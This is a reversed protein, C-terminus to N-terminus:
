TTNPQFWLRYRYLMKSQLLMNKVSPGKWRKETKAGYVSAFGVKTFSGHPSNKKEDESPDRIGGKTKVFCCFGEILLKDCNKTKSSVVARRGLCMTAVPGGYGFMGFFPQSRLVISILVLSGTFVNFWKVLNGDAGDMGPGSDFISIRDPHLEVSILRVEGKNNSWLAQLSNDILDALATEPTYDDPLEKLLDTDPTLDWMGEYTDPAASGDHLCLINWENPLLTRFNIKTRKKKSNADTFHIDQYKWNIRRKPQESIRQKVVTAHEKKVVDMFKEIPMETQLVSLKLELTTSNPMLIRFKFTKTENFLGNETKVHGFPSKRPRESSSDELPRKNMTKLPTKSSM